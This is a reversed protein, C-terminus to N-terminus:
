FNVSIWLIGFSQNRDCVISFSWFNECVEFFSWNKKWVGFVRGFDGSFDGFSVEEWVVFSGDRPVSYLQSSNSSIAGFNVEVDRSCQTTNCFVNEMLFPITPFTQFVFFFSTFMYNRRRHKLKLYYPDSPYFFLHVRSARKRALNILKLLWLTRIMEVFFCVDVM